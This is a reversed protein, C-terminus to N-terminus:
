RDEVVRSRGPLRRAGRDDSPLAQPLPQQTHLANASALAQLDIVPPESRKWPAQESGRREKFKGDITARAFLKGLVASRMDGPTPQRTHTALLWRVAYDLQKCDLDSLAADFVRIREPTPEFFPWVQCMASFAALWFERREADV